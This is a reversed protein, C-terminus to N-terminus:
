KTVVFTTLSALGPGPIEHMIGDGFDILQMWPFFRENYFATAKEREWEFILENNLLIKDIYTVTGANNRWTRIAIEDKSGDPYTINCTSTGNPMVIFHYGRTGEDIFGYPEVWRAPPTIFDQAM